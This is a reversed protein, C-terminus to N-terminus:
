PNAHLAGRGAVAPRVRRVWFCAIAWIARSHGSIFDGRTGGRQFPVSDQAHPSRYPNVQEQETM